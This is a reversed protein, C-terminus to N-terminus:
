TNLHASVKKNRARRVLEEKVDADISRRRKAGRFEVCQKVVDTIFNRSQWEDLVADALSKACEQMTENAIPCKESESMLLELIDVMDYDGVLNRKIDQIHACNNVGGCSVGCDTAWNNIM